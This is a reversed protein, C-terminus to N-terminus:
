AGYNVVKNYDVVKYGDPHESVADPIHEVEHAMVGIREGAGWTGQYEPKYEFTYLPVGNTLTGIRKVNQKIRIDSGSKAYLAIGSGIASGLGQAFMGQSQQQASYAGVDANYKQVGLSGVNGWGANATQTAANLAGGTQSFNGLAQQGLGFGQASAGLGLQTSANGQAALGSYMNAVNAQKQLGLEHAATRVQNTAAASALAQQAGMSQANTRAVGSTPDIGYQRQRMAEQARQNAFQTSLDSAAQQALKEQYQAENYQAADARLAEMAPVAGEEYRQYAKRAQELQQTEVQKGIDWQESARKEQSQSQRLLEPYIDTTFKSWQEKSLEAMERQAIGINPDAAPAGGGGKGGELTMGGKWGRPQFAREPLLDWETTHWRAM